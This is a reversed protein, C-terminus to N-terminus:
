FQNAPPLDSLKERFVRPFRGSLRLVCLLSILIIRFSLFYRLM